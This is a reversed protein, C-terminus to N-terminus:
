NSVSGSLVTKTLTRIKSCPGSPGTTTEDPPCDDLTREAAAAADEQQREVRQKTVKEQKKIVKEESAVQNKEEAVQKSEEPSDTPAASNAGASDIQPAPTTIQQVGPEQVKSSNRKQYAYFGGLGALLLLVAPVAILWRKGRPKIPQQV